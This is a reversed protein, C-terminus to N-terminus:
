EKIFTAANNSDKYFLNVVYLGKVLNSVDIVPASAATIKQTILKRGLIDTIELTADETLATGIGINLFNNTPNPYIRFDVSKSNRVALPTCSSSLGNAGFVREVWSPHDIYPNRNRQIAYVSDNRAIEFTSPPDQKSWKVCVQLIWPDLAPWKNGALVYGATSRNIMSPLSDEYRTVFYLYARAFDGKFADIPEFVLSTNYGFNSTTKSTGVKSGNNSTYTPNNVYGLPINGKKFNTYGDAPWIFHMDSYADKLSADNSAGFWSEPFVHEKNYCQCQATTVTGLCFGAPYRFNCSDIGTPIDSSYRDDVVYGGGTEAPKLDTKVYYNDVLTYPVLTINSSILHFLQTKLFNCTQNSDISNYYTGPGAIVLTKLFFLSLFLLTYNKHKM